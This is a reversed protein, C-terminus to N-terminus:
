PPSLSISQDVPWPGPYVATTGGPWRVEIANVTTASGLGFHAVPESSSHFSNGAAIQRTRTILGTRVRILAGIARTNPASGNLAVRLWHGPDTVTNRTFRALAGPDGMSDVKRVRWGLDLRGDHDFDASALGFQREEPYGTVTPVIDIFRTGINVAIWPVQPIMAALTLDLDGDNDFDLFEAGWGFYDNAEAAWTRDDEVFTGDGQNIYLLQGDDAIWGVDTIYLDLDGDNDIDGAAVGMAEVLDTIGASVSVNTFPSPSDNRFLSSSIGSAPGRDNVVLLDQDGDGDHDLWLGQLSMAPPHDVGMAAGVEEFVVGGLNHFLRSPFNAYAPVFADLFGDGDYDAWAPGGPWQVDVSGLKASDDVFHGTGDNAFLYMAPGPLEATFSLDLDGDGDYDVLTVGRVVSPSSGTLAGAVPSFGGLGDGRYVRLRDPGSIAADVHSDGDIDGFALGGDYSSVPPVGAPWPVTTSDAFLQCQAGNPICFLNIASGSCTITGCPGCPDGDFPGCYMQHPADIAADPDPGDLAGDVTAEPADATATADVIPADPLALRADLPASDPAQAFTQPPAQCGVLCLYVAALATPLAFPQCRSIACYPLM